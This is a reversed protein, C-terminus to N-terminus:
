ILQINTPNFIRAINLAIQFHQTTNISQIIFANSFRKFDSARNIVRYLSATQLGGLIRECDRIHEAFQLGDNEIVNQFSQYYATFDEESNFTIREGLRYMDELGIAFLGYLNNEILTNNFDSIYRHVNRISSPHKIQIMIQGDIEIDFPGQNQPLIVQYTTNDAIKAALFIELEFDKYFIDRRQGERVGYEINGARCNLLQNSYDINHSDLVQISDTLAWLAHIGKASQIIRQEIEEPTVEEHFADLFLQTERIIFELGYGNTPIIRFENLKRQLFQLKERLQTLQEETM